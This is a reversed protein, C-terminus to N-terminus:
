SPAREHRRVRVARGAVGRGSACAVDARTVFRAGVEAYRSATADAVIARARTSRRERAKLAESVRSFAARARRVRAPLAAASLVKPRDRARSQETTSADTPDRPM